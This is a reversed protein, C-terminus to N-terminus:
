LNHLHLAEDGIGLVGRVALADLGHAGLARAHARQEVYVLQLSRAGRHVAVALRLGRHAVELAHRLAHAVAAVV